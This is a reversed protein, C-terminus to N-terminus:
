KKVAEIFPLAGFRGELYKRSYETDHRMKFEALSFLKSAGQEDKETFWFQDKIFDNQYGLLSTDHTTVILQSNKKNVEPSEFLDVIFKVLLPHLSNDFEDIFVPRGTELSEIIPAMISIFSQTGFSEELMDLPFVGVKENKDNFVPHGFYPVLQKGATQKFSFEGDEKKVEIGEVPVEKTGSDVICFDAVKLYNLIKIKLNKNKEMEKAIRDPSFRQGAASIVIFSSLAKVLKDAFDNNFQAAVTLFLTNPRTAGILSKADKFNEGLKIDSGVRSFLVKDTKASTVKTLKESIVKDALFDFEFDYRYVEDYDSETLSFVLEFYSPKKKGEESGLFSNFPFNRKSPKDPINASRVVFKIMFGIADMISTKGSANPGYIMTAKLLNEGNSVFTHRDNKRSLMSFTARDKFSKFNELSFEILSIRM